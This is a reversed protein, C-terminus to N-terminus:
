TGWQFSFSGGPGGPGGFGPNQFFMPFPHGGQHFGFPNGQGSTDNPDDGNDFRARLQPDSLVEYAENVAAMKAESGGKDPHAKKAALRYAKKITRADADRAIGLVKYYDKKKSQRLLRRAKELKEGIRQNGRGSAEFAKEYARVADEWEEKGLLIDGKNLLADEDESSMKLTEECWTQANKASGARTYARCMAKYLRLRRPSTKRPVILQPLELDKTDEDLAEDFKAILGNLLTIIGRHNEEIELKELKGFDKEFAKVKRHAVRCPKSDPDYHLCQKLTQMAQNNSLLYYTIRAIRLLAPSSPGNIHTLRTMDGVAQELDGVELACEMRLTRLSASHTATQLAKTSEEICAPYNKARHAAKAKKSAVEGESIGFLLDVTETEAAKAAKKSYTTVLQRAPTWNGEKAFIRAKMFLAKDFGGDTLELVKDFDQLAPTHRSLSLYATARKYYLLYSNPSLEIAESYVRAADNFQSTSLLVDARTVLNRLGPVELGGSGTPADQPQEQAYSSSLAAVLPFLTQFSTLRM